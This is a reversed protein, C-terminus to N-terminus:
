YDLPSCTGSARYFVVMGFVVFALILGTMVRILQKRMERQKRSTEIRQVSQSVCTSRDYYANKCTKATKECHRDANCLKRHRLTKGPVTTLAHDSSSELETSSETAQSLDPECDILKGL